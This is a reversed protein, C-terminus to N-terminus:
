SGRDVGCGVGGEPDDGSSAGRHALIAFRKAYSRNTTLLYIRLTTVFAGGNKVRFEKNGGVLPLTFGSCSAVVKKVVSHQQLRGECTMPSKREAGPNRQREM